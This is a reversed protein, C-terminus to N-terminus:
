HTILVLPPRSSTLHKPKIEWQPSRRENKNKNPRWRNGRGSVGASQIPMTQGFLRPAAFLQTRRTSRWYIPAAFRNAGIYQHQLYKFFGCFNKLQLIDTHIQRDASCACTAGIYQHQSRRLVLINTSSTSAAGIDAWVPKGVVHHLTCNKASKKV